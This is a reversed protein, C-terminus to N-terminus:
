EGKNNEQHNNLHEKHDDAHIYEGQNNVYSLEDYSGSDVPLKKRRLLDNVLLTVIYYIVAFTPVGLIMGPIGFLGGGVMIAFVVWFASLGTSDGLIKPGIVNGDLQQLAFIFILFYVGKIPSDLLILIASPIAGIYPGFFPIVNTVGVIVSVLLVYPMNLISLGIFCLVGIIASDIIKGSLFGIFIDGSKRTLHLVLNARDPKLLAYVFKKSQRSFLEKSYLVYISVIIGVCFNLVESLVNIVGVTLNTMIINTQKLLDNRLWNQLYNSGEEIANTVLMNITSDKSNMENIQDLLSNLQGPVKFVMDRISTYLEPLLINCLATILLFATLLSVLIGVSRSIKAAREPTKTMKELRPVLIQDVKKIVPNLLFAIGLGYIIPKAVSLFTKLIGSIYNLRFLGFYFLIAAAIVLFFTMGQSFQQRIKSPGRTGFKPQNTYYESSPDSSSNDKQDQTFHNTHLGPDKPDQRLDKEKEM